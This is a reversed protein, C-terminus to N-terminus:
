AVQVERWFGFRGGAAALAPRPTEYCWAARPHRVGGIVVDYFQVGHPCELDSATKGTKQLWALRVAAPPFYAYGRCAVIDDSEAIVHGDVVAKM